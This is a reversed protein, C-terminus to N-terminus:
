TCYLLNVIEVTFHTQLLFEYANFINIDTITKFTKNRKDVHLYQKFTENEGLDCHMYTKM